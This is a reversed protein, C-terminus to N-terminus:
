AREPPSTSAEWKQAQPVAQAKSSSRAKTPSTGPCRRPSRRRRAIPSGPSSAILGKPLTTDLGTLRQSGDERSLKLVFPSYAGAQPAITGATFSPNNPATAESAPCAGTGAAAASTAFSDSLNADVGEPASWPTIQATTTYTACALPTRLPARPGKFFSVKVDEIPLEPNEEFSAVLQGSQPNAEVRGALKSVVGTAPDEVDLYIALLSSFPNEFPKALYVAGALPHDLLPTDVQVSGLKAAQPCSGPDETFHAQSQGVPTSLGIQAPDCAELGNGSSPNVSMGEPLTVKVDKFNATALGKPDENQPVHLNFELGSPADALNTTPKAEVEPKFDLQNCGDTDTPNGLSDELETSRNHFLPEEWDSTSATATLTERCSSPMTLFASKFREPLTHKCSFPGGIM